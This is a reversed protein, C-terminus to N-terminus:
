LWFFGDFIIEVILDDRNSDINNKELENCIEDLTDHIDRILNLDWIYLISDLFVEDRPINDNDMSFIPDMWGQKPYPTLIDSYKLVLQKSDYKRSVNTPRIENEWIAMKYKEINISNTDFTENNSQRYSNYTITYNTNIVVDNNIAYVKIYYTAPNLELSFSESKGNSTHINENIDSYKLIDVFYDRPGIYSFSFVLKKRLSFRFYDEDNINLKGTIKGNDSSIITAKDPDNDNQLDDIDHDYYLNYDIELDDNLRKINRSNRDLIFGNFSTTKLPICLNVLILLLLKKILM